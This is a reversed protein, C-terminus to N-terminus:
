GKTPSEAVSAKQALARMGRRYNWWLMGLTIPVGVAVRNFPEGGVLSVYALFCVLVGAVANSLGPRRRLPPILRAIILWVAAILILSALDVIMLIMFTTLAGLM